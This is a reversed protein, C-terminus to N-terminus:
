KNGVMISVALRQLRLARNRGVGWRCSWKQREKARFSQRAKTKLRMITGPIADSHSKRLMLKFGDADGTPVPCHQRVWRRMQSHSAM